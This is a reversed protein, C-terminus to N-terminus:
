FPAAGAPGKGAGKSMTTVAAARFREFALQVGEDSEPVQVGAEALRQRMEGVDSWIAPAAPVPPPGAAASGAGGGGGGPASSPVLQVM